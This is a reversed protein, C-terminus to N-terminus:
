GYVLYVATCSYILWQADLMSDRGGDLSLDDFISNLWFPSAAVLVAVLSLDRSFGLFIIPDPM